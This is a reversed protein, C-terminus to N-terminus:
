AVGRLLDVFGQIEEDSFCETVGFLMCDKLGPYNDNLILGGQYKKNFLKKNLRVPNGKYEFVIENFCTGTFRKKFVDLESLMESLKQGNL